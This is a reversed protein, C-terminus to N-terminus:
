AIWMIIRVITGISLGLYCVMLIYDMIRIDKYNSKRLGITLIFFFTDGILLGIALFLFILLLLLGIWAAVLVTGDTSEGKASDMFGKLSFSWIICFVLISIALFIFLIIIGVLEQKKTKQKLKLNDKNEEM